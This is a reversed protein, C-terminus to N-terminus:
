VDLLTHLEEVIQYATRPQDSAESWGTGARDYACVRNTKALQRQVWYWEISFSFGGSELIVTPSGEGMCNLHMQKGNVEYLQGPAAYNRRDIETAILQYAVGALILVLVTIGTWKIGRRVYFFCGRQQPTTTTM